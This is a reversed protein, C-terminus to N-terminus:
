KEEEPQAPQQRVKGDVLIEKAPLVIFVIGARERTLECRGLYSSPSESCWEKTRNHWSHNTGRQIIISHPGLTVEKGDDVRM